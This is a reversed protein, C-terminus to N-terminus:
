EEVGTQLDAGEGIRRVFKLVAEFLSIAGIGFWVVTVGVICDVKLTWQVQAFGGSLV